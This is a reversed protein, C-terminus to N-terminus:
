GSLNGSKAETHAPAEGEDSDFGQGEELSSVSTLSRDMFDDNAAGCASSHASREDDADADSVGHNANLSDEPWEELASLYVGTGGSSFSSRVSTSAEVM